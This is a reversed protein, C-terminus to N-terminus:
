GTWSATATVAFLKLGMLTQLCPRLLSEAPIVSVFALAGTVLLCIIASPVPLCRTITSSHMNWQGQEALLCGGRNAVLM